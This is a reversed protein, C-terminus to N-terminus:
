AAVSQADEMWCGSMLRQPCSQARVQASTEWSEQHVSLGAYIGYGEGTQIVGQAAIGEGARLSGGAIIAGSSRIGWGADIHMACEISESAILGHGVNLHGQVSVPGLVQVSKACRVDEAVVLERGPKLNGAVEVNGTSELGWEAYLDGGCSLSGDVLIGWGARLNGQIRLDGVINIGAEVRVEDGAILGSQVGPQSHHGARVGGGVYIGRGTRILQDVEVGGRVNLTGAFVIAQADVYDLERVESTPGFQDLLWCADGVRGDEVLADLLDQYNGGDAYHKVFWRFGDACPRKAKVFKKTFDM